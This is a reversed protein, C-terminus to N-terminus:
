IFSKGILNETSKTNIQFLKGFQFKYIHKWIQYVKEPKKAFYTFLAWFANFDSRTFLKYNYTTGDM